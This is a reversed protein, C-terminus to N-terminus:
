LLNMEKIVNLIQPLVARKSDAFITFDSYTARQQDSWQKSMRDLVQEVTVNDRKVVREIRLDMPAVVNLVKDATGKFFPKELIIASEFLVFKKDGMVSQQESKWKNFDRLVAPHVLQEVRELLSRDKFIKSAVVAKSLKGNNIIDNGLLQVMGCLLENDSDYLEKARADSYYVPYGLKSFVNAVYSKGSGIGGTCALTKVNGMVM